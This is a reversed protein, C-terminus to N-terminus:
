HGHQFTVTGLYSPRCSKPALLVLKGCSRVRACTGSDPVRNGAPNGAGQRSLESVLVEERARVLVLPHPPPARRPTPVGRPPIDHSSTPDAGRRPPCRPFGHRSETILVQAWNKEFRSPGLINTDRRVEWAFDIAFLRIESLKPKDNNNVGESTHPPATAASLSIVLNRELTSEGSRDRGM